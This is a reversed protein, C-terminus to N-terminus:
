PEDESYQKKIELYAMYKNNYHNLISKNLEAPTINGNYKFDIFLANCPEEYFFNFMDIIMDLTCFGVELNVDIRGPRIFAKDLKEIHNTTVILIRGPTELIGDLLNLLFSLTLEEGFVYPNKEDPETEAERSHTINTLCDIDEIVYIREDVSINFHETKNDVLVNLKEDFFLNRLQTQTTDKYLKINIVHRNADKAISKIISTKGTGPPGHLLVGLTYPIGKRMYWSKHHIFMDVREKLATLHSGFINQLSKNTNFPTMHFTISKPAKDLQIVGEQDKPLTVHKEDFFYKQIGLKNKQEYMYHKTLKDVFQKMENLSKTYSIFKIKYSKQDTEDSNVNSVICEYDSDLTFCSENIVSFNHYYKLHKSHNHNIIYYNIANFITDDSNEKQIFQISSCVERKVDKEYMILPAKEQLKKEIYGIVKRQIIPLYPMLNLLIMTSIIHYISVGEKMSLISIMNTNLMQSLLPGDM